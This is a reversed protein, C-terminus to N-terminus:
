PLGPGGPLAPGAPLSPGGPGGPLEPEGPPGPGAPTLPSGPAGPSFPGGPACPSLTLTGEALSQAVLLCPNHRRLVLLWSHFILSAGVSQLSRKECLPCWTQWTRLAESADAPVQTQWAHTAGTAWGPHCSGLHSGKVAAVGEVRVCGQGLQQFYGLSACLELFLKSLCFTIYQPQKPPKISKLGM